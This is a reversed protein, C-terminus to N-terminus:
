GASGICIPFGWQFFPGGFYAPRWGANEQALEDAGRAFLISGGKNFSIGRLGCLFDDELAAQAVFHIEVRAVVRAKEAVLPRIAIEKASESWAANEVGEGM